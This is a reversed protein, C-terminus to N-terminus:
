CFHGSGGGWGRRTQTVEGSHSGGETMWTSPGVLDIGVDTAPTGEPMVTDREPWDEWRWCNDLNWDRLHPAVNETLDELWRGDTQLRSRQELEALADDIASRAERVAGESVLVGIGLEDIEPM